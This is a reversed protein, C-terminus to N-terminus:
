AACTINYRHCLSDLFGNLGDLVRAVAQTVPAIDTIHKELLAREVAAHERDAEIHITFYYWDRPNKMGYYKRLGDIKSICIAPIQSEYTYLAAIGEAVSAERCITKFTDIMTQIAASPQHQDVQEETAGLSLAFERWLEPHNPHGAEEEVLNQLIHRRTEQDETHAHLASLYTPFAKVHHYYEIAYDTLCEKTLKGKSWAQYFPHNLLHKAAIQADICDLVVEVSM